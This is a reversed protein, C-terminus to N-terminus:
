PAPPAIETRRLPLSVHGSRELRFCLVSGAVVLVPAAFPLWAFLQGAVGFGLMLAFSRPVLALQAGVGVYHNELAHGMAIQAFWLASWGGGLISGILTGAPPFVLGVLFGAGAFLLSGGIQLVALIAARLAGHAMERLKQPWDIAVPDTGYFATEAAEALMGFLPSLLPGSVAFISVVAFLWWVILALFHGIEWLAAEWWAAGKPGLLADLVRDQWSAAEWIVLGWVISYAVMCLLLWRGVRPHRAIFSLTRLVTRAGELLRQLAHGALPDRADHLPDPAAQM